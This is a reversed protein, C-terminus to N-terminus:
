FVIEDIAQKFTKRFDERQKVFATRASSSIEEIRSQPLKWAKEVFTKVELAGVFARMASLEKQARQIPILLDRPVGDFENMPPYDTTILVAGVGLAQHIVHGWGEAGSPVLHYLCENSLVRIEEDTARKIYTVNKHDRAFFAEEEYAGIFVLEKRIDLDSDDFFKGFCYSVAQSNKYRSQGAIHLFKKKREISPDYLDKSEFGIYQVRAAGYNESFIRVADQTKCLIKDIKPMIADNDWPAFWEQNPILVQKKAKCFMASPIVELFINVDASDVGADIRMYHVLNTQHGWSELLGKLLRADAELGVGNDTNTILNFKM